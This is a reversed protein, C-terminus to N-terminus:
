GSVSILCSAALWHSPWTTVLHGILTDPGKNDTDCMVALGPLPSSVSFPTFIKFDPAFETTIHDGRHPSSVHLSASVRPGPWVPWGRGPRAPGPRADRASSHWPAVALPSLPWLPSSSVAKLWNHGRTFNILHGGRDSDGESLRGEGEAWLLATSHVSPGSQGRQPGM